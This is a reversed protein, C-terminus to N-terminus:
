TDPCTDDEAQLSLVQRVSSDLFRAVCTQYVRTVLLGTKPLSRTPGSLLRYPYHMSAISKQITAASATIPEKAITQSKYM